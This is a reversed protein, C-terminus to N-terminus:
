TDSETRREPLRARGGRPCTARGCCSLRAGLRRSCPRARVSTVHGIVVQDRERLTRGPVVGPRAPLLGAPVLMSSEHVRQDVLADDNEAAGHTVAVALLDHEDDIGPSLGHDPSAECVVWPRAVHQRDLAHLRPRDPETRSVALGSRSTVAVSLVILLSASSRRPCWGHTASVPAPTEVSLPM